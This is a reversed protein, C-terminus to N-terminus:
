HLLWLVSQQTSSSWLYACCKPAKGLGLVVGSITQQIVSIPNFQCSHSGCQAVWVQLVYERLEDDGESAKHGYQIVLPVAEGLYRGFRCCLV